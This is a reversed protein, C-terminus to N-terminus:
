RRRPGDAPPDGTRHLDRCRHRIGGMRQADWCERGQRGGPFGRRLCSPTEPKPQAQIRNTLYGGSSQEMGIVTLYDHGGGIVQEGFRVGAINQGPEKPGAAVLDGSVDGKTLVPHRKVDVAPVGLGSHAELKERAFILIM